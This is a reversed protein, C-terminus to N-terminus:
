GGGTGVNIETGSRQVRTVTRQLQTSACATNFRRAHYGGGIGINITETRNRGNRIKPGLETRSQETFYDWDELFSNRYSQATQNCIRVDFFARQSNNGWFGQACIDSRANDETIASTYSFREGSLSQLPPEIAVGECVETMLNATIDRILNHRKSPFGGRPCDMAHSVSFGQRLCM